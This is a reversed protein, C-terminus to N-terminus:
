WRRPGPPSAQARGPRRAPPPSGGHYTVGGFAVVTDERSPGEDKAEEMTSGLHCAVEEQEEQAWEQIALLGKPSHWGMDRRGDAREPATPEALCVCIGPKGM